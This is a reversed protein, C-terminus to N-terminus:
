EFSLCYGRGHQSMLHCPLNLPELKHRLRQVYTRLQDAAHDGARWGLRLIEQAGVFRDPHSFLISFLDWEQRTLCAEAGAFALRRTGGDLKMGRFEVKM